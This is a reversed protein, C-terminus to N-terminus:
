YWKHMFQNLHTFCIWLLIYIMNIYLDRIFLDVSFLLQFIHYSQKNKTELFLTCISNRIKQPDIYHTIMNISYGLWFFCDQIEENRLSVTNCHFTLVLYEPIFSVNLYMYWCNSNIYKVNVLVLYITFNIYIAFFSQMGTHECQNGYYGSRCQCINQGMCSGGNKCYDTPCLVPLFILSVCFM